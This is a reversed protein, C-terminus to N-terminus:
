KVKGRRLFELLDAFEQASLSNELGEPMLSAPWARIEAIDRRLVASEEGNPRRLTMGAPTEAAVIGSLTEGSTTKVLYVQFQPAVARNPDLLDTLLARKDRGAVSGLNPGVDFGQGHLRHCTACSTRYVKEGRDVDAQLTEIKAYLTAITKEVEEANKPQLAERARKRFEGSPNKTLADRHHAEIEVARIAGKELRELVAAPGKSTGFCATLLERRVPATYRAWGDLLRLAAEGGLARVAAAQVDAPELPQLLAELKAAEPLQGLLGIAGIRDAPEKARDFATAALAEGWGAVVKEVGAAALLVDLKMGARRLAPGLSSLGALRWRAPAPDATIARLWEVIQAEERSAGVTDAMQRVLDVAGPSDFFAAPLRAVIKACLGKASSLAALRTWKDAADRELIAALAAVDGGVSLACQFRVRPDPDAALVAVAEPCLREALRLAHERLGAEPDKLAGRVEDAALVGLGDLTWLAHLRALPSPGKLHARLADVAGKDQREVILRQATDRRWANPHALDAVTLPAPKSSPHGKPAVRWIRGKDEGARLDVRKQMELPIWQPHEIVARYMDVVYLAGDPGTCLNVPRCWNDTSALFEADKDARTGVFSAGRPTLIDRHVLNHVPECVFAQGRLAPLADGRYITLSCASTIRGAAFHDNPREALTSAPFLACSGGHDSVGTDEVGPVALSPNRALYGLPLVPHRLHNSNDCIFRRGWDDFANGYQGHGAAPEFGSFDPRFRFDRGNIPVKRGDRLLVNGGSDGNTGQIWNDLTWALTNVRHQQNGEAFGSFVTERVGDKIFLIDPAATVLVGGRFPLVGTPTAIEKAVLVSRDYRGDGDVDELRRIRGAPPGLPYDAMEAVWLRGDEDFAIAVPDRVDPESAVLTIELGAPVQWAKQAEAPSLQLVLLLALM